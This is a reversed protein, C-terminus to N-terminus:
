RYFMSMMHIAIHIATQLDQSSHLFSVSREALERSSGVVEVGTGKGEEELFKKTAETNRDHILLTDTDPIKARLNQAMPFGTM